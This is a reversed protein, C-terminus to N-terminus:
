KVGMWGLPTWSRVMTLWTRAGACSVDIPVRLIVYQEGDSLGSLACEATLRKMKESTRLVASYQSHGGAADEEPEEM